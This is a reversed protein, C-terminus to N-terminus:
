ETNLINSIIRNLTMQCIKNSLECEWIIIVKYGMSHLRNYNEEDRMKNRELKNIWMLTNSKPLHGISCNHYHWFCGNIFIVTKYKPLYIDPKGPLRKDNKRYRFGHKFLYKRVMDEIKTNNSKIKSMRESRQEKSM